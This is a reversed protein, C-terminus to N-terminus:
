DTRVLGLRKRIFAAILRQPRQQYEWLVEHSARIQDGQLRDLLAVCVVAAAPPRTRDGRPVARGPGLPGGARGGRRGARM